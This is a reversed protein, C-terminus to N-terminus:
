GLDLRLLHRVGHPRCGPSVLLARQPDAAQRPAPGQLGAAGRQPPRLGRGPLSHHAPGPRPRGGPRRHPRPSSRGHLLPRGQRLGPAPAPRLPDPRRRRRRDAPRSRGRGGATGPAAKGYLPRRRRQYRRLGHLHRLFLQQVGPGGGRRLGPRGPVPHRVAGPAAGPVPPLRHTRPLDPPAHRRQLPHGGGRAPVPRLLDPGPRLLRRLLGGPTGGAEPGGAPRVAAPCVGGARVPVPSPLGPSPGRRPSAEGPPARGPAGPRGPYLAPQGAGGPDHLHGPYLGPVPRGRRCVGGDAVAPPRPLPRGGGAGGPPVQGPGGPGGGRRRLPPLGRRLLSLVAGGGGAAGRVTGLVAAKEHHGAARRVAPDSGHGHHQLEPGHPRLPHLPGLVLRRRRRGLRIGQGAPLLGPLGPRPPGRLRVARGAFRRGHLRHHGPVAVGSAHHAAGGDPLCAVRPRLPLGGHEVPPPRHSLLRRRLRRLRLPM